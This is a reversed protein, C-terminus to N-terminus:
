FLAKMGGHFILEIGDPVCRFQPVFANNRTIEAAVPEM